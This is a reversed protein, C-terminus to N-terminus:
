KIKGDVRDLRNRYEDRLALPGYGGGGPTVMGVVDGHGVTVICKSNLSKPRIGRHLIYYEGPSGPAGGKLGWPRHRQREGLLSVTADQALIEVERRLGLGGRFKGPGGSGPVLEYKRVLFPHGTELAEVPTNMTNTMHSHVGDIGDKNYRAGYGGAVTEYYTFARGTRPDTGGIAINNMTGQCAACVREPIIKALAKLVIDVIRQSTEVNGGAVPAPPRANVITGAPAVVTIPRFCGANAPIRPDTICRVVYYVASLTISYVANLPGKVQGASGIFDFTMAGHGIRLKAKLPIDKTGLGDDDLYDVASAEGEPIKRIERRMLRNSYELLQKMGSRITVVGFRRILEGFRKLGVTNAAQQARIDGLRERPTRVNELILDLVQQNIKGGGVIKLPPIRIGEQYIDVSRSSMSGPTMGGVDSHHARNAAFGALEGRHFITTVMTIDPLHTGGRFPDNLVICDGEYLDDPFEQLVTKVSHPMAGLHVPIHEAQAVLDGAGDFVACSFDKREKINASFSSRRLVVGMEEAVSVLSNKVIEFTIPDLRHKTTTGEQLPDQSHFRKFPTAGAFAFRTFNGALM